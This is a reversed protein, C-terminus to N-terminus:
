IAVMTNTTKIQKKTNTCKYKQKPVSPRNELIRIADSFLNRHPKCSYM